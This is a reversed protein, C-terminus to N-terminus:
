LYCFVIVTVEIKSSLWYITKFSKLNGIWALGCFNLPNGVHDVKVLEKLSSWVKRASKQKICKLFPSLCKM